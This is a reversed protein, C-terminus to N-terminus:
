QTAPVMMPVPPTTGNYIATNGISINSVQSLINQLRDLIGVLQVYAGVKIPSTVTVTRGDTTQIVFSGDANVQTVNGSYNSAAPPISLDRVIDANLTQGNDTTDGYINLQDGAQLDSLQLRTRNSDLLVTQADLNVVTKKAINWAPMLASPVSVNQLAASNASPQIGMPCAIAQETAGSTGVGYCPYDSQQIVVLTYPTTNTAVAVLEVSNLQIFEDQAPKSLDRILYAQISGDTNYYGFVNIQDGSAFSSL